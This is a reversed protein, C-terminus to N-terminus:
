QNQYELYLAKIDEPIDINISQKQELSKILAEITYTNVVSQIVPMNPTAKGLIVEAFNKLQYMYSDTEELYENADISEYETTTNKPIINSTKNILFPQPVDIIGKECSIEIELNNCKKSSEIVGICGTNTEIIGFMRNITDYKSISGTCYVKEPIGHMISNCANIPYCAFDFPIGGGCEKKQRWNRNTDNVDEKEADFMSFAGRVSDVKGFAQTKVLEGMKKVLPHHRYMFAEMLFVNNDDVIKKIEVAEEGTMTLAKECLINKAGANVCKEIQELHQNPWTVLIVGDLDEKEIMEVYDTYYRDCGNDEAWQKAREEDIDCCCLYNVFSLKDKAGAHAFSHGGCGVVGFNLIKEDM